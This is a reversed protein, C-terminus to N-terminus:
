QAVCFTRITDTNVAGKRIKDASGDCDSQSLMGTVSGASNGRSGGGEGKPVAWGGALLIMAFGPKDLAVGQYPVCFARVNGSPVKVVTESAKQCRDFETFGPVAHVANGRSGGGETSANATWGNLLIVLAYLPTMM